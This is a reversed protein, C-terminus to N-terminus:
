APCKEHYNILEIATKEFEFGAYVIEIDDLVEDIQEV